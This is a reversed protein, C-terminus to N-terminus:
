ARLTIAANSLVTTGREKTAASIVIQNGERWFSSVVTEGPFVPSSFRVRYRAVKTVDGGLMADVAAKCVVGFSCLGHLIPKDFGAMKAIEPDAHLPNKDGSLRYILAQHPAIPSEVVRDPAREPVKIEDKPGSEGGFGGEGRALITFRNTFLPEGGKERTVTELVISAMKGKDYVGAVRPSSEIQAQVPLPRHIEIEQEGHLVLMFNIDIGPIGNMNAVAGFTPIVAFSPLVKLNKEYVYELEKPDLPNAAGAGIGLHYLIVQDQTWSGEGTPLKAALAKQPDIPM